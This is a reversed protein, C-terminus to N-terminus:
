DLNSGLFDFIKNINEESEFEAGGHGAGEIIDLTVNEAGIISSLANAFNVSQTVPINRDATGHQILFPPDDPTIYSQPSAAFVLDAAEDANVAMGIYRSEPSKSANTPGLQPKLNLTEFQNDMRDFQIPGFWDIAAHVHSGDDTSGKTAALAALNGGASGGWVAFRTSDLGFAQANQRAFRVAEQVDDIAAPFKAEDSLRYGISIVAYGRAVGEEIIIETDGSEKSGFMFGGGHVAFIVPFPGDGRPFYMDLKQKESQDAYPVDSRLEALGEIDIGRCSVLFSILLVSLLLIRAHM